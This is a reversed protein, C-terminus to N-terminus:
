GNLPRPHSAAQGLRKELAQMMWEGVLRADIGKTTAVWSMVERDCSDLAFVVRVREGNDCALEL